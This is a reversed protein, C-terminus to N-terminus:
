GARGRMRADVSLIRLRRMAPTTPNSLLQGLTAVLPRRAKRHRVAQRHCLCPNGSEVKTVGAAGVREHGRGRTPVLAQLRAVSDHGREVAM